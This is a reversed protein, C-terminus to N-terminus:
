WIKKQKRFLIVFYKAVIWMVFTSIIVISVRVVIVGLSYRFNSINKMMHKENWIMQMWKQKAAFM